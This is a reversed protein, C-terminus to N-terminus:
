IANTVNQVHSCVDILDIEINQLYKSLPLTIGMISEAVCLGIVFDGRTIAYGLQHAKSKSENDTGDTEIHLANIIAVYM